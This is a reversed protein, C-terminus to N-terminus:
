ALAEDSTPLDIICHLGDAAFVLDGHGGFEYRLLDRIM